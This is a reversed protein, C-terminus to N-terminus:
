RSSVNYQDCDSNCCATGALLPLTRRATLQEYVADWILDHLAIFYLVSTADQPQICSEEATAAHLVTCYPTVKRVRMGEMQIIEGRHESYCSHCWFGKVGESKKAPTTYYVQGCCWMLVCM